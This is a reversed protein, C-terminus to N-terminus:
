QLRNSVRDRNIAVNVLRKWKEAKGLNEGSDPLNMDSWLASTPLLVRFEVTPRIQDCDRIQDRASDVKRM